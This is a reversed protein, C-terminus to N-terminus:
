GREDQSDHSLYKHEFEATLDIIQQQLRVLELTIKELRSLFALAKKETFATHIARTVQNYNTGIARIQAHITTLRMYYDMAAKDIKVVKLQKDFISALIFHAKVKIGSREYRALFENHQTETMSVTYRFVAPNAKPKRGGNRKKSNETTM